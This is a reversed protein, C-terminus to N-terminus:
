IVGYVALLLVALYAPRRDPSLHQGGVWMRAPPEVFMILLLGCFISFSTLASQAFPLNARSLEVDGSMGIVLQGTLLPPILLFGLFVIFGALSLTIGAPIVFRALSRILKDHSVLEPKAWFALAIAPIGVTILVLISSNKPTLPFSGAFGTSLILLAVYLIRTL